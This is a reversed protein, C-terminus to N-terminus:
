RRSICSTLRDLLARVKDTRLNRTTTDWGKYGDYELIHTFTGVSGVIAEWSGTLRMGGLEDGRDMIARYYKEAAALYEDRRSPIVSHTVKEHVYKNRGILKSFQTAKGSVLGEAKAAKSGYMLTQADDASSSDYRLGRFSVGLFGNGGSAEDEAPDIAEKAGKDSQPKEARAPPSTHLRRPPVQSVSPASRFRSIQRLATQPARAM